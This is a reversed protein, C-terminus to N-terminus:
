ASVGSFKLVFESLFLRNLLLANFDLTTLNDIDEIAEERGPLKRGAVFFWDRLDAALVKLADVDAATSIDKPKAAIAVQVSYLVERGRRTQYKKVEPLAVVYVKITKAQPNTSDWNALKDLKDVQTVHVRSVDIDQSITRPDSGFGANFATKVAEAITDAPTM